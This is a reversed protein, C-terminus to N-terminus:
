DLACVEPNKFDAVLVSPVATVPTPQALIVATISQDANRNPAIGVATGYSLTYISSRGLAVSSSNDKLQHKMKACLYKKGISKNKRALFVKVM